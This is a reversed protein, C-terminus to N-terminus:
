RNFRLVCAGALSLLGLLGLLPMDSATDPLSDNDGATTSDTDNDYTGGTTTTTAPVDGPEAATDSDTNRDVAVGVVGNRANAGTDVDVDVGTGQEPQGSQDVQQSPPVPPTTTQAFLATTGLALVFVMLLTFVNRKM